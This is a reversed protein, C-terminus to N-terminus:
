NIYTLKYEPRSVARSGSWDTFCTGKMSSTSADAVPLSLSPLSRMVGLSIELNSPLRRATARATFLSNESLSIWLIKLVAFYTKGDNKKQCMSFKGDTGRRQECNKSTTHIVHFTEKKMLPDWFAPLRADALRIPESQRVEVFKNQCNLKTYVLLIPRFRCLLCLEM